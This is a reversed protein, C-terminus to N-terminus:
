SISQPSLLQYSRQRNEKDRLPTHLIFEDIEYQDHLQDLQQKIEAATGSLIDIKMEKVTFEENTQEHLAAVQEKSQVKYTRGSQFTIQYLKMQEALLQAEEKTPAALVAVAAMFKGSPHQSRFSQVAERLDVENGNLFQAFVFDSQLGAALAASNKSGGLLFMSPAISPVPTAVLGSFPHNSPISQTIFQQLLTFRESFDDQNQFYDQQLAKTSLDLGGPAKGVGLDIRGPALAALLHFTEAVKYPSYHQLMVGGSGLRITKTHALLHALLIEPASGAVVDMHHHESVWFRKYGWLEAQKALKITSQLADEATEDPFIPSQDLIGLAYRM